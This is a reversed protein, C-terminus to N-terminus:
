KLEGDIQRIAKETQIIESQAHRYGDVFGFDDLEDPISQSAPRMEPEALHPPNQGGKPDLLQSLHNGLGNLYKSIPRTVFFVLITMAAFGGLWIWMGDRVLSQNIDSVLQTQRAPSYRLVISGTPNGLMDNVGLGLAVAGREDDVIWSSHKNDQWAREWSAPIIDGVFSPDTSLVTSGEQDFVEISLISDNEAMAALLQQNGTPVRALPVGGLSMEAELSARLGEILFYFRDNVTQDIAKEFKYMNIMLMMAMAALSVILLNFIILVPLKKALM